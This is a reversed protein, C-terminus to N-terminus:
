RSPLGQDNLPLRNGLTGDYELAGFAVAFFYDRLGLGRGRKLQQRCDFIVGRLHVAALGPAV